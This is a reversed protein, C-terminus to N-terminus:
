SRGTGPDADDSRDQSAARKKDLRHAVLELIGWGLVFGLAIVMDFFPFLSNEM